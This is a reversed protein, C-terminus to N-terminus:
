SPGRKPFNSSSQKLRQATPPNENHLSEGKLTYDSLYMQQTSRDSTKHAQILELTFVLYEASFLPESNGQKGGTTLTPILAEAWGAKQGNALMRSTEMLTRLAVCSEQGRKKQESAKEAVWDVVLYSAVGHELPLTPGRCVPTLLSPITDIYSRCIQCVICIVEETELGSKKLQLDERAQLGQHGTLLKLASFSHTPGSSSAVKQQQSISKEGLACAHMGESMELCVRVKKQSIQVCVKFTGGRDGSPSALLRKLSIRFLKIPSTRGCLLRARLQPKSRASAKHHPALVAALNISSFPLLITCCTNKGIKYKVRFQSTFSVSAKGQTLDRNSEAMCVRSRSDLMQKFVEPASISDLAGHVQVSGKPEKAVMSVIGLAQHGPNALIACPKTNHGWNARAKGLVAESGQSALGQAQPPVLKGPQQELACWRSTQSVSCQYKQMVLVRSGPLHLVAGAPYCTKLGHQTLLVSALGGACHRAGELGSFFAVDRLTDESCQHFSPSGKVDACFGSAVESRGRPLGRHQTQLRCTCTHAKPPLLIRCSPSAKPANELDWLNQPKKDALLFHSWTSDTDLPSHEKLLGQSGRNRRRRLPTVDTYMSLVTEEDLLTFIFHPTDMEPEECWAPVREARKQNEKPYDPLLLQGPCLPEAKHKPGTQEGESRCGLDDEGNGLPQFSDRCSM